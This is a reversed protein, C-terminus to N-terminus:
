SALLGPSKLSLPSAISSVVPSSEKKKPMFSSGFIRTFGQVGLVNTLKQQIGNRIVSAADKELEIIKKRIEEDHLLDDM